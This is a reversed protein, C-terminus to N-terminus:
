RARCSDLWDAVADERFRWVSGIKVGALQGSDIAARVTQRSVGLAAMVEQTTVM